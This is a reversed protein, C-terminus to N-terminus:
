RQNASGKTIKNIETITVLSVDTPIVMCRACCIRIIVMATLPKYRKRNGHYIFHRLRLYSILIVIVTISVLWNFSDEGTEIRDVGKSSAWFM